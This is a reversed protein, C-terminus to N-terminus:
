LQNETGLCAVFGTYNQGNVSIVNHGKEVVVRVQFFCPHLSPATFSQLIDWQVNQVLTLALVNAIDKRGQVAQSFTICCAYYAGLFSSEFDLGRMQKCKPLAIVTVGSDLASASFNRTSTNLFALWNEDKASGWAWICHVMLDFGWLMLIQRWCWFTQKWVFHLKTRYM